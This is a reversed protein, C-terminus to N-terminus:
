DSAGPPTETGDAMTGVALGSALDFALALVLLLDISSAKSFPLAVCLSTSLCTALIRSSMQWATEFLIPAPLTMLKVMPWLISAVNCAVKVTKLHITPNMQLFGLMMGDDSGSTSRACTVVRMTAAFTVLAVGHDTLVGCAIVPM